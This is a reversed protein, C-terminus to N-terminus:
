TKLHLNSPYVCSNILKVSIDYIRSSDPYDIATFTLNPDGSEYSSNIPKKQANRNISPSDWKVSKWPLNGRHIEIWPSQEDTRGELVYVVPDCSKCGDSSYIRIGKAISLKGHVPTVITGTQQDLLGTRDCWDQNTTGDFSRWTSGNPNCGFPEGRSGVLVNAVPTGQSASPIMSPYETPKISPVLSTTPNSTPLETPSTSPAPTPATSPDNPLLMGPIEIEGMRMVNAVRRTQVVTLKYSMYVEKNLRYDISTYVLNTDGSKYTSNIPLYQPNRNISPSDWKVSKWPLNGRHIEIWPSQEDTRGELVYVVPDCSKCGDSSYIRIGKAISLKTPTVIIGSPEEPYLYRGCWLRNTTGDSSKYDSESSDCGFSTVQSSSFINSVLTGDSPLEVTPFSTPSVSPSASPSETPNTSPSSSVSISPKSSTTPSGSQTPALTPSYTIDECLTSEIGDTVVCQCAGDVFLDKDSFLSCTSFSKRNPLALDLDADNHIGLWQGVSNWISEWPTTPIIRGRQLWYDSDPGLPSPYTGKITGGKISGGTM